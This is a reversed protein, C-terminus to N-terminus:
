CGWLELCPPFTLNFLLDWLLKNKKGASKSTRKIFPESNKSSKLDEPLKNDSLNQGRIKKTDIFDLGEPHNPTLLTLPAKRCLPFHQIHACPIKSDCFRPFDQTLLSGCSCSVGPIWGTGGPAWALHQQQQMQLKFRMKQRKRRVSMLGKGSSGRKSYRHGNLSEARQQFVRFGRWNKFNRILAKFIEVLEKSHM